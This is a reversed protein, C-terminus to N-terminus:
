LLKHAKGDAYIHMLLYALSFDEDLKWVLHCSQLGENNEQLKYYGNTTIMYNKGKM